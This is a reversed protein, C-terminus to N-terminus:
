DEMMSVILKQDPLPLSNYIDMPNNKFKETFGSDFVEAFKETEAVRILEDKRVHRGGIKITEVTKKQFTSVYPNDISGKDWHRDVGSTMDLHALKESFERPEIEDKKGLLREYAMKLAEGDKDGYEYIGKILRLRNDFAMKLMNSYSRSDYRMVKKDKDIDVNNEEAQKIVNGCYELANKPSFHSHNEEFYEVAMKVQEATNIPFKGDCAFKKQETVYPSVVNTNIDDSANKEIFSSTPIKHNECAEKLNTAAIKVMSSPLKEANKELYYCSLLAQDRTRLPFRGDSGHKTMFVLGYDDDRLDEVKGPKFQGLLDKNEKAIKTSGGLDDVFDLEINTLNKAM